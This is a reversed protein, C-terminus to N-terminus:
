QSDAKRKRGPLDVVDTSTILDEWESCIRLTEFCKEKIIKLSESGLPLRNPLPRGAAFGESRIVDVMRQVGKQTDGPQKGNRRQIAEQVVAFFDKYEDHATSASQVRSSSLLKTQFGGPEFIVSQIGFASVEKQLCEVYGVRM